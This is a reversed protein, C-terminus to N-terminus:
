VQHPLLLLQQLITQFMIKSIDIILGIGKDVAEGSTNMSEVGPPDQSVNKVLPLMLFM